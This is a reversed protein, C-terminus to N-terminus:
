EEDAVGVAHAISVSAPMVVLAHSAPFIALVNIVESVFGFNGMDRAEGARFSACRASTGSTPMTMLGLVSIPHAVGAVKAAVAIQHARDIHMTVGETGM